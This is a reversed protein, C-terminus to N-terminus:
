QRARHSIRYAADRIAFMPDAPEIGSPMTGPRFGLWKDAAPQDDALSEISITGLPVLRRRKSWAHSPNEIHNGRGAFQAVWEFVIPGQALRTALEESLYDPGKSKRAARDLVHVGAKPDFCYRVHTRRGAANVFMVSSVGYYALAAYSAPPRRRKSFFAKATPHGAVFREFATPKDAGPPSVGIARLLEGFLSATITPFGNFSHAVIDLRDKGPLKFRIGLGHPKAGSAYDPIDPIGSFNSFRAIIPVLAGSFVGARSWERAEITPAFCGTLIVGKAFLARARHWGFAAHLDNILHSAEKEVDGTGDDDSM